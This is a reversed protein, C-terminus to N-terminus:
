RIGADSAEADKGLWFYAPTTNIPLGLDGEYMVRGYETIRPVIPADIPPPYRRSEESTLGRNPIWVGNGPSFWAVDPQESMRTRWYDSM